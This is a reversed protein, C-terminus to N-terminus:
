ADAEAVDEAKAKKAPKKAPKKEAKKAPEKKEAKPAAAKKVPKAKPAASREEPSQNLLTQLRAITKRVERIRSTKEVIGSSQQFRLNFAEKRSNALLTRLEDETKGRLEAIKM